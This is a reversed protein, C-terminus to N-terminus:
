ADERGFLDENSIHTRKKRLQPYLREVEYLEGLSESKRREAFEKSVFGGPQCNKPCVVVFQGDVYREVLPGYCQACCQTRVTEANLLAPSKQTKNM